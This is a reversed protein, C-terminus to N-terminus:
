SLYSPGFENLAQNAYWIPIQIALFLILLCGIVVCLIKINRRRVFRTEEPCFFSKPNDPDVRIEFQSGIEAKKLWKSDTSGALQFVEGNYSYEYLPAKKTYYSHNDSDYCRVSTYSVVEAMVSETCRSKRKKERLIVYISLIFPLLFIVKILFIMIHDM